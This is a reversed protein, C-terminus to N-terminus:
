TEKVSAIEFAKGETPDNSNDMLLKGMM